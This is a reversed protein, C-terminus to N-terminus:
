GRAAAAAALSRELAPRHLPKALHDNMGAALCQSRIDPSAHATLAIIYPEPDLGLARVRRSTEMGDMGPMEVDMILVDFTEDRLRALCEAGSAAMEARLNMRALMIELLRRNVALDDVVLVRLPPLVADANRRGDGDDVVSPTAGEAIGFRLRCTFTSGQGPTSEVTVGGGMLESMRRVILLGLGTGGYEHQITNETQSFPQFLRELERPDIGIGTDSVILRLLCDTASREPCDVAVRVGGTATFKIANTTLNRLIQGVRVKDGIVADPLDAAFETDFTLGKAEAEPAMGECFRAIEERPDFSATALRMQGAEIKSFDLVENIVALLSEGSRNIHDVYERQEADLPTQELLEMFGLVSNLPSRIEHSMVALYRDKARTAEEAALAAARCELELQKRNTVDRFWLIVAGSEEAPVQTFEYCRGGRAVEVEAPSQRELAPLAEPWVTFVEAVPLGRADEPLVGLASAAAQNMDVVRRDAGQVVLLDSL